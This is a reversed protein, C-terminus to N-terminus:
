EFSLSQHFQQFPPPGRYSIGPSRLDDDPSSRYASIIKGEARHLVRSMASKNVDLHEAVTTLTCDRPSDYYGRELAVDVVERQRDALLPSKVTTASIRTIRYEIGASDLEDRFVSLQDQSAVLEGDRRAREILRYTTRTRHLDHSSGAM